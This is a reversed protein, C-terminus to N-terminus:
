IIIDLADSLKKIRFDARVNYQLLYNVESNRPDILITKITALSGAKVDTARDGIIYSKAPDIKYDRIAKLLMGPKPKRCNCVKSYKKIVGKPHHFCYYIGDVKIDNNKLLAEFKKVLAKKTKEDIRGLAVDPQNSVVFIKYGRENLKKIVPVSKLFLELDKVQIPAEGDVKKVIVGDRDLFVARQM